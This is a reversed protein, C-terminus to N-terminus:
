IHGPAHVSMTLRLERNGDLQFDLSQAHGVPRGGQWVQGVLRCRTGPMPSSSMSERLVWDEWDQYLAALM